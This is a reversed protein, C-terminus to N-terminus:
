LKLYRRAFSPNVKEMDLVTFYDYCDFDKDFAPEGYLKAGASFYGRLLPPVIESINKHESLSSSPLHCAYSDTPHIDWDHSYYNKEQFYKTLSQITKPTTQMISSTGFLYRSNTKQIYAALGKWLIDMAVGNRHDPHICARGLELKLGETALFNDIKFESESYFKSHYLSSRLRYTGCVNGTDNNIVILHDCEADFRDFEIPLIPLSQIQFCESRLAFAMYLEKVNDATKIRYKGTSIDLSVLPKHSLLKFFNLLFHM